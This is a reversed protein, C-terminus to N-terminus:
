KMIIARRNYGFLYFTRKRAQRTEPDRSRSANKTSSPAEVFTADVISGGRMMVGKEELVENVRELIRAGLGNGELVRRFKLLTTADPM